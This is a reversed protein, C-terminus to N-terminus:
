QRVLPPRATPEASIYNRSSDDDRITGLIDAAGVPTCSHLMVNAFAWAWRFTAGITKRRM